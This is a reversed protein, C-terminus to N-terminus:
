VVFVKLIVVDGVACGGVDLKGLGAGVGGGLGSKEDIIVVIKVSSVM